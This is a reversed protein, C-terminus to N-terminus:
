GSIRGGGKVFMLGLLGVALMGVVPAMGWAQTGGARTASEVLLPGLWMTASGSLVYLGFFVGMKDPPAVRTLLTRSSAYAATVTIAVVCGLGLFVVEPLTTFMPGDWFPEGKWPRFLIRERGMGLLLAQVVVLLALELKVALKPGIADDLVGALLGGAVAAVSLVIGYGLMELTGWRMVGAAFLGGFVLIATLGDTYVMRALLFILPNRHGRAERVLQMLDGAGARVAQPVSLASRAMDPVFRFLPIAGVAMVAAVILTTIRDPEGLAPDLGFLPAAPLWGWDVRGPLAFAFLVGVLMLVSVANGGALALGSARGAGAMGAAPLLLANHLMEHYAFLATMAALIVVIVERSLGAGTPPTFWLATICGVMLAVVGALWPKRPGLRDIMAGLLPASFMVIWGGWKNASAVLTQGVVPDGVVRTVYYPAFIYIAIMIVYPDRTAQMLAWARAARQSPLGTAPTAAAEVLRGAEEDSALALGPAM